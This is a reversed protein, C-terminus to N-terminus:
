SGGAPRSGQPTRNGSNASDAAEADPSLLLRTAEEPARDLFLDLNVPTGFEPCRVRGCQQTASTLIAEWREKKETPRRTVRRSLIPVFRDVGLETGHRLIDDFPGPRICSFALTVRIREAKQRPRPRLVNGILTGSDERDLQM